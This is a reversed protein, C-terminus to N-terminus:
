RRDERTGAQLAAALGRLAHHIRSKATGPPIDLRNAVQDISLDAYFRLALVMRHDPSLATFAREMDAREVLQERPDPRRDPMEMLSSIDAMRNRGRHRLRNRCTNVLIRGFWADFRAPDRLGGWGRWAAVFADHTADEAEAPDGLILRVLRYSEDLSREVLDAFVDARDPRDTLAQEKGPEDIAVTTPM